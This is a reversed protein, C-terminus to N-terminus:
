AAMFPVRADGNNWMFLSCCPNCVCPSILCVLPGVAYKKWITIIMPVYEEEDDRMVDGIAKGLFNKWGRNYNGGKTEDFQISTLYVNRKKTGTMQGAMNLATDDPDGIMISRLRADLRTCSMCATPDCFIPACIHSLFAGCGISFNRGVNFNENKIFQYARTLVSEISEEKSCYVPYKYLTKQKHELVRHEVRPPGPKTDSIFHIHLRFQDLGQGCRAM